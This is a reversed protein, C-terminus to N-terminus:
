NCEPDDPVGLVDAPELLLGVGRRRQEHTLHRNLHHAIM